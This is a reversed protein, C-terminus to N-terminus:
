EIFVSCLFQIYIFSYETANTMKMPKLFSKNEENRREHQSAYLVQFVTWQFTVRHIIGKFDPLKM